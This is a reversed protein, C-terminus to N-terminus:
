SNETDPRQHHRIGMKDLIADKADHARENWSPVYEAVRLRKGDVALKPMRIILIGDKFKCELKEIHVDEPIRISEYVSRELCFRDEGEASKAPRICSGHKGSIVLHNKTINVSLDSRPIGPVDVFLLYEDHYERWLRPNSEFQSPWGHRMSPMPESMCRDEEEFMQLAHKMMRVMPDYLDERSRRRFEQFKDQVQGGLEKAGERINETAEGVREKARDKMEIAKDKLHEAAEKTQQKISQQEPQWEDPHVWEFLACCSNILLLTWLLVDIKM